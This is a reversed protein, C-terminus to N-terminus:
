QIFDQQAHLQYQFKHGRIKSSQRVKLQFELSLHSSVSNSLINPAFFPSVKRSGGQSLKVQETVIEQLGGIGTGISCGSRESDISQIGCDVIAQRGALIGLKCFMPLRQLENNSFHSAFHIDRIRGGIKVPQDKMDELMTIGSKQNRLANLFSNLDSGVPSLVGMGTIM